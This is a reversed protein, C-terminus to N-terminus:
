PRGVIQWVLGMQRTTYGMFEEGLATTYVSRGDSLSQDIVSAARESSDSQLLPEQLNRRTQEWYWDFDLLEPSIVTVQSSNFAVVYRYYWLAFLHEDGDAFIVADRPVSQFISQAYEYAARDQSLNVVPLSMVVNSGPLLLLAGVLVGRGWVQPLRSTLDVLGYAIWLAFITFAPLLYVYSDRTAYVIAYASILAFGLVLAWRQRRSERDELSWICAIGWLALAVGWPQFQEFLLRATMAVRALVEGATLNFLYPRYPAASIVWWFGDLTRPDGWNIPPNASARWPLYVYLLLPAALLLGARLLRVAGWRRNTLLVLVSPLLLVISAHHALGLGFLLASVELRYELRSMAAALLATAVLANLAYVEAIVAQSFFLPAFAWALAAAAAGGEVSWAPQEPRKWGRAASYLLVVAGAAAIASFLGVNRAPEGFPLHAFVASILTYLPYGPPHPIGLTFAATVLDGSDAGENRWTITPALAVWYAALALMGISIGIMAALLARARRGAPAEERAAINILEGAAAM